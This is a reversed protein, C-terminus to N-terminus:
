CVTPPQEDDVRAEGNVLHVRGEAIWTLVTPYLRHEEVKVRASLSSENDDAFVPVSRQGLIAGTDMGEDVMHVTCGSITTGAALVDRHAHAGPFHPLLSPHINVVRHQWQNLFHPSLLRMYGALVVFEIDHRVLKELVLTEHQERTRVQGSEDVREVVATPVGLNHARELGYADARNSVVLTITHPLGDAHQARVLAEMGSGSGSILVACRM